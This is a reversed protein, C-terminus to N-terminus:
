RNRGFRQQAAQRSIGLAAGVDAWSFGRSQLAIAAEGLEHEALKILAAFDALDTTDGESIRRRYSRLMRGISSAYEGNERRPGRRKPTLGNKVGFHVPPRQFAEAVLLYVRRTDRKGDRYLTVKKQGASETETSLIRGPVKRGTISTRPLSRVQGQDSVEYRGEYGPVPRWEPPGAGRSM